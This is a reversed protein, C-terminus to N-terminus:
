KYRELLSVIRGSTAKTSRPKAEGDTPLKHLEHTADDPYMGFKFFTRNEPEDDRDFIKARLLRLLCTWYKKSKQRFNFEGLCYENSLLHLSTKHFWPRRSNQNIGRRVGCRGKKAGHEVPEVNRHDQCFFFKFLEKM